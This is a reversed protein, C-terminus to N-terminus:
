NIVDLKMDLLNADIIDKGICLYNVGEETYKPVEKIKVESAFGIKINKSKSGLDKLCKQGEKLDERKGTDIMIVDAGFKVADRVEEYISKTEGKIQIVKKLDIKELAKLAKEIGGLMRVHNKGLYIFEDEILRTRGGAIRVAEQIQDKLEKPMKKWAGAIVDCKGEGLDIAKKAATAIGSTKALKGIVIEEAKILQEPLGEMKCIIDGIVVSNGDEKLFNYKLDLNNLEEKANKVGALIGSMDAKIVGKFKNNKIDKLMENKIDEYRM